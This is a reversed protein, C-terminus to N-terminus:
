LPARRGGPAPPKPARRSASSRVYALAGLALLLGLFGLGIIFPRKSVLGLDVLLYSGLGCGALGGVLLRWRSRISALLVFLLTAWLYIWVDTRVRPDTRHAMANLFLPGLIHLLAFIEFLKSARRLDLSGAKETALMVLLFLLGNLAISFAQQRDHDFYPFRDKDIGMLALTPGNLAIVDLCGVLALLAVLHFPLTWRVLGKRELTLAAIESAILPLCWRAKIEPPQDLWNYLLLLSLYTAAALAASTWAFGTMRLRWLGLASLVLATAASAAVQQNTFTGAFLQSVQPPPQALWGLEAMLSLMCPAIALAAGALFNAAALNERARHATLGAALLVSTFFFPVLWRWPAALEQRLMWVTLVTAVVTLWAGASLL